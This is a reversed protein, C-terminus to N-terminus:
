AKIRKRMENADELRRKLTVVSSRVQLHNSTDDDTHTIQTRVDGAHYSHRNQLIFRCLKDKDVLLDLCLDQTIHAGPQRPEEHTDFDTVIHRLRHSLSCDGSISPRRVSDSVQVGRDRAKTVLRRRHTGRGGKDTQKNTDIIADLGESNHTNHIVWGGRRGAQVSYATRQVNYAVGRSQTSSVM